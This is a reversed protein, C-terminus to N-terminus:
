KFIPKATRLYEPWVIEKKGKQWQIILPAHKTQKGTKDVNYMGLITTSEMVSLMDRIKKRDLSATKKIAKELLEGAAYAQAAHYSPLRGYAKVFEKYFAKSGPLKSHHEWQSSSFTYQADPGLQKYYAQLTPGVAAYYVKPYWGSKKLALRVDVAEELHGCVILIQANSERAKKAIEVFDKTGKKFESFLLVRFGFKEAWQKTGNAIGQSFADDAFVIAVDDFGYTILMQLFGITFRSAPSITGFLYEHGRKWLRDGSASAIIPYGYKETVPAIAEVLESSYPSFLLDVKDNTILHEYLFKAAHPDSKDDHIILHVKRGLIGGRSNVEREWLKFAKMQMDSMEAYHGTLGLSLGIKIPEAADASLPFIILCLLIIPNLFRKM